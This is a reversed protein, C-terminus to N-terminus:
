HLLDRFEPAKLAEAEGIAGAAIAKRLHAAAQARASNALLRALMLHAVGNAPDVKLAMRYDAEARAYDDMLGWAGARNIYAEALSPDLSLARTCDAIGAKARGLRARVAGRNVYCGAFDPDAVLAADYFQEATKLDGSRASLIGLNYLVVPSSPHFELALVFLREARAPDTRSTASGQGVLLQAIFEKATLERLYVGRRIQGPTVRKWKVYFADPLPLGGRTTEINLKSHGDNFRVFVHRPVLVAKLPLNLKGAVALTLTTLSLCTGTKRELVSSITVDEIENIPTPRAKVKSYIVRALAKAVTRGTIARGALRRRLEAAMASVERESRATDLDPYESKAVVIAALSIGISGEPLGAIEHVSQPRSGGLAAPEPRPIEHPPGGCGPALAAAVACAAVIRWQNLRGSMM